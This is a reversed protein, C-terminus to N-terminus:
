SWRLGKVNQDRKIGRQRAFCTMKYPPRPIPRRAGGGRKCKNEAV